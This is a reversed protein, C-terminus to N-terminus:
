HFLFVNQLGKGAYDTLISRHDLATNGNLGYNANHYYYAPPATQTDCAVWNSTDEVNSTVIDGLNNLNSYYPSSSVQNTIRQNVSAQSMLMDQHLGNAGSNPPAQVTSTYQNATTTPWSSSVTMATLEDTLKGAQATFSFFSFSLYQFYFSHKLIFM